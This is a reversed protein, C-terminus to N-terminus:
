PSGQYSPYFSVLRLLLAQSNTHCCPAPHCRACGNTFVYRSVRTSPGCPPEIRGCPNIL